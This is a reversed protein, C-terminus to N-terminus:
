LILVLYFFPPELIKSDISISLISGPKSGLSANRMERTLRVACQSIWPFHSGSTRLSHACEMRTRDPYVKPRPKMDNLMAVIGVWSGSFCVEGTGQDGRFVIIFTTARM